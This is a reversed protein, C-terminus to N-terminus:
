RTCRQRPGGSYPQYTCSAPDFSSYFRACADIHCQPPVPPAMSSGFGGASSSASSPAFGGGATSASPPAVAIECVQRAGGYYPQYTCDSARFSHYKAACAIQDCLPPTSPEAAASSDLGSPTEETPQPPSAGAPGSPTAVGSGALAVRVGEQDLMPAARTIFTKWIEAPLGGGVVRKMPADNDNGLWVGVVLTDNFGLFWADRYDQSTGTKGAAFGDLAARQGTGHEVVGQLLAILPQQYPDLTQPSVAPVTALMRSGGDAGIAAVGWPRVDLHDARVSAFAGTMDVLSIGATGLALSPVDPLPESIGLDRAAKIVNGTGVTMELRVAATNVSNAFADALTIRGYHENDFNDPTWGHVAIPGADIKDQPTWGQRLAALYVFLKFSSGPQRNRDAARNFKSDRYNSGGVMALVAGDPRMAVLAGESVGLRRGEKALADDLVQQALNQLDPLLTTRVSVSGPQDGALAAASKAVWDAFWSHAPTLEPAPHVVAPHTKAAAAAAADIAHNAVMADLVSTARAQAAHPHRLPDFESPAKILGALLAAEPLDLARPAKDFYLRAAAAMGVAGDGLYVRNLYRDLIEDKSLHLELWIAMLAQRLKFVYSRDDGLYELKVLQQTITSAGQVIEGALRNAEAARIMGLPDVGPHNFFRRDEASLVANILVPPFEQLPVDAFHLPGVRGLPEGTAAELLLASSTAEAAPRGIPLGILAWLLACSLVFLGAIGIIATALLVRRLNRWVPRAAWGHAGNAPPLGAAASSRQRAAALAARRQMRRVALAAAVRATLLSLDIAVARAFEPGASAARSRQRLTALWIRLWTRLVALATAARAVLMSLDAVIARMLESGAAATRSQAPNRSEAEGPPLDNNDSEPFITKVM